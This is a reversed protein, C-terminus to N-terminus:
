KREFNRCRNRLSEFQYPIEPAQPFMRECLSPEPFPSCVCLVAERALTEAWGKENVLFHIMQHPYSLDMREPNVRDMAEELDSLQPVKIEKFNATCSGFVACAVFAKFFRLLMM